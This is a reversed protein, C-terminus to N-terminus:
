FRFQHPFIEDLTVKKCEGDLTCMHIELGPDFESLVQRCAGCPPTPLGTDTVLVLKTFGTEGESIGKFLAVREACITLGFSSNEINTGTYIKGSEGEIAAGVKFHSYPSYSFERVEKAAEFLKEIDKDM